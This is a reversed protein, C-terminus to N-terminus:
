NTSDFSSLSSDCQKTHRDIADDDITQSLDNTDFMNDHLVQKMTTCSKKPQRSRIDDDSSDNSDSDYIAVKKIEDIKSKIRVEEDKLNSIRMKKDVKMSQLLSLYEEDADRTRKYSIYEKFASAYDNDAAAKYDSLQQLDSYLSQLLMEKKSLRYERMEERNRKMMAQVLNHSKDVKDKEVKKTERKTSMSGTASVNEMTVGVESCNQSVTGVLDHMEAMCWFYGTPLSNGCFDFRDDDIYTVVAEDDEIAYATGKLRMKEGDALNGKGNGSKRWAAVSWNMSAKSDRFIEKAKEVTLKAERKEEKGDMRYLPLSISTSFEHHFESFISSRPIWEEDNYKEVVAEFFSLPRRESNRADLEQRSKSDYMRILKDRLEDLFCAESLRMKLKTARSINEGMEKDEKEKKEAEEEVLNAFDFVKGVVFAKESGVLPHERLWTVLKPKSWNKSRPLKTLKKSPVGEKEERDNILVVRRVIEKRFYDSSPTVKTKTIKKSLVLEDLKNKQMEEDSLCTAMAFLIHSAADPSDDIDKISRLYNQSNTYTSSPTSSLSQVSSSTSTLNSVDSAQYLTPTLTTCTSSAQSAPTFQPSQGVKCFCDQCIRSHCINGANVNPVGCIAHIHRKCVPCKHQPDALSPRLNCREGAACPKMRDAFLNIM